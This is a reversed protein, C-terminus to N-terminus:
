TAALENAEHCFRSKPNKKPGLETFLPRVWITSPHFVHIYHAEVEVDQFNPSRPDVGRPAIRGLKDKKTKKDM